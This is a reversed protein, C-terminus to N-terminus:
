KTLLLNTYATTKLDEIRLKKNREIDFLSFKNASFFETVEDLSVGLDFMQLPSWELIIQLNSCEQILKTMGKLVSLEFGEVDIKIVIKKSADTPFDVLSDVTVVPVIVHSRGNTSARSQSTIIHANGARGDPIELTLFGPADSAAVKEIKIPALSWNILLNDKLLQTLGSNPEVAIVSGSSTNGIIHAALCSFYGFNAGVDIFLTDKDLLTYLLNSVNPEWNRYVVLNPTILVDDAYVIYKIGHITQVILRNNGVYIGVPGVLSRVEALETRLKSIEAVLSEITEAERM